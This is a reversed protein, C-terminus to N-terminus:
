EKKKGKYLNDLKPPTSRFSKTRFIMVVYVRHSASPCISHPCNHLLSSYSSSPTIPLLSPFLLYSLFSFSFSSTSRSLLLRLLLVLISSSSVLSQKGFILLYNTRTQFRRSVKDIRTIVLTKQVM